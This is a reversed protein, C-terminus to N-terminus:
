IKLQILVHVYWRIGKLITCVTVGLGSEGNGLMDLTQPKMVETFYKELKVDGAIYFQRYLFTGPVYIELCSHGYTM